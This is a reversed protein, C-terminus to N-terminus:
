LEGRTVVGADGDVTVVDGDKLTEVANLTGLVAPIGYERAVIAAHSVASGTDVIVARARSFLPTWAPNTFPAVLVEGDILRHFDAPGRVVRVPGTATGASAPTGSLLADAPVNGTSLYRRDILPTDRFADRTAQREAVLARLRPADAATPESAPLESRRLHFVDDPTDICGAEALRRGYERVIRRVVPQPMTLYFHTDERFATFARAARLRGAVYRRPFGRRLLPHSFLEAEARAAASESPTPEAAAMGKLIGLVTDPSDIWTPQSIVAISNIERHGYDRLFVTFDDLFARGVESATLRSHITDPEHDAFVASLAADRRIRQALAELKANTESTKTPAGTLLRTYLRGRHFMALTLRFRGVAAAARPLFDYRLEIIPWFAALARDLLAPLDDWPVAAVDTSRLEKVDDLVQALRPDDRWRDVHFRRGRVMARVMAVPVGPGIGVHAGPLLREVVGDREAFTESPAPTRMGGTSVFRGVGEFMATTWTDMDMPYPRVTVIESMISALMRNVRGVRGIPEPLATVPRSQVIYFKEGVLSWEIDQPADFHTEIDRGLAVLARLRAATLVPADATEDRSEVTGGGEASRIVVERRGRRSELTKGSKKNVVYHDPTVLGSVVAEGLGPSADVIALDRAGSVPDATFMVGATDSDAMRQVVVAIAVESGDIGREARYQGARDTWLSAWCRRVADLVQEDGVVNLFTDHQGAFAADGLDEATGSSRVAVAGSGLEHYADLISREIAAGMPVTSLRERLAALDDGPAIDNDRLTNRYAVTSVVFGPPVPAGAAILEGLNAAKGGAVPLWDRDLASLPVVLATKTAATM